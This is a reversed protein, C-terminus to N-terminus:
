ILDRLSLISTFFITQFRPRSIIINAFPALKRNQGRNLTLESGLSKVLFSLLKRQLYFFFSLHRHGKGDWGMLGHFDIIEM